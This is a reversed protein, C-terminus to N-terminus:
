YMEEIASSVEAVTKGSHRNWAKASDPHIWTPSRLLRSVQFFCGASHDVRASWSMGSKEPFAEPLAGCFPCSLLDSGRQEAREREWAEHDMSELASLRRAAKSYAADRGERRYREVLRYVRGVEQYYSEPMEFDNENEHPLTM